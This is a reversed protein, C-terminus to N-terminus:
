ENKNRGMLLEKINEEEKEELLCFNTALFTGIPTTVVHYKKYKRWMLNGCEGMDLPYFNCIVGSEFRYKPSMILDFKRVLSLLINKNVLLDGFIKIYKCYFKSINGNVITKPIEYKFERDFKNIKFNVNSDELKLSTNNKQLKNLVKLLFKDRLKETVFDFDIEGANEIFYFDVIDRIFLNERGSAEIVLLVLNMNDNPIKFEIGQYNILQTDLWLDKDQFWTTESIVYNAINIEIWIFTKEDLKKQYKVIGSIENLKTFMPIYFFNYGMSTLVNHTKWFNEINRILFDFDNSQRVVDENYYKLMALGKLNLFEINERNLEKIVNGLEEFRMKRKHGKLVWDGEKIELSQKSNLLPDILRNERAREILLDQNQNSLEIHKYEGTAINFLLNNVDM